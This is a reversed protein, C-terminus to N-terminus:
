TDLEQADVQILEFDIADAEPMRLLEVLNGDAKKLHRCEAISMLALTPKRRDTIIVTGGESALRKAVSANHLFERSTVTKIQAHQLILESLFARGTCRELQQM